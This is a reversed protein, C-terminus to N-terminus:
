DVIRARRHLIVIRTIPVTVEGGEVEGGEVEGGEVEGGHVEGGHVEGGDVGGGAEAGTKVSRTPQLSGIWDAGITPSTLSASRGAATAAAPPWPMNGAAKRWAEQRSRTM